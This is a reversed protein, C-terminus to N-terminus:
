SRHGWHPLHNLLKGRHPRVPGCNACLDKGSATHTWGKSTAHSRADTVGSPAPVALHVLDNIIMNPPLATTGCGNCELIVIKHATM